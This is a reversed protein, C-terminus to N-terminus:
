TTTRSFDQLPGPRTLPRDRRSAGHPLVHREAESAARGVVIEDGEEVVVITSTIAYGHRKLLEIMGERSAYRNDGLPEDPTGSALTCGPQRQRVPRRESHVQRRRRLRTWGSGLYYIVRVAVLTDQNNLLDV